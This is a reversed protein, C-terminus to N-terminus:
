GDHAGERASARAASRSARVFSDAAVHDWGGGARLLALDGACLGLVDRLVAADVAPEWAWGAPVAVGEREVFAEGPIPPLPSGRVVVEGAAGLAFSWRDLRVQPAAVAYAEWAALTTVLVAPEAEASCRVLRVPVRRGAKGALGPARLRVELWRALPQWPGDPLHGHPVRAGTAVLQRDPLVAFRQAGPLARLRADLSEDPADGQLWVEGPRECVSLGPVLRLRGM